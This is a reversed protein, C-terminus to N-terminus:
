NILKVSEEIKSLNNYIWSSQSYSEPDHENFEVGSPTQLILTYDGYQALIASGGAQVPPNDITWAGPWRTIRFMEGSYGADRAAKQYFIIGATDTDSNSYEEVGFIDGIPIDVSFGLQEDVYNVFPYDYDPVYDSKTDISITNDAGNWNVGINNMIALERLKFYNNGGINYATFDIRIGDVYIASKTPVAAKSGAGPGAMEVGIPDYPNGRSISVANSASDWSIEFQKDTGNLAYALDRLKFYNSGDINYADFVVSEGDIMVASSTPSATMDDAFVMGTLPAAGILLLVVLIIHLVNKSKM